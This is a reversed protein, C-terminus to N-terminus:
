NSSCTDAIKERNIIVNGSDDIKIRMTNKFMWDADTAVGDQRTLMTKIMMASDFSGLPVDNFKTTEDSQYNYVAGTTQSIGTGRNKIRVTLDQAGTKKVKQYIFTDITGTVDVLENTCPNLVSDVLPMEAKIPGSQAFAAGPAAASGILLAAATAATTRNLVSRSALVIAHAFAGIGRCAHSM